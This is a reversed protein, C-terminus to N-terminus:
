QLLLKVLDELSQVIDKTEHLETKMSSITEVHQQKIKAIEWEKQLSTKTIIRRYCRVREPQEKDFIITFSKEPTNGAEQRDKLKDIVAQTGSNVQSSDEKNENMERKVSTISWCAILKQFQVELIDSPRNKLMDEINNNIEFHKKKIRTKYRKWTERVDTMVWM